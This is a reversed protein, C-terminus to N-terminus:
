NQSRKNYINLRNKYTNHDLKLLPNDEKQKMIRYLKNKKQVSNLIAATMSEKRKMRKILINTTCKKINKDNKDIIYNEM